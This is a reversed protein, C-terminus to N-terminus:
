LTGLAHAAQRMRGLRRLGLARRRAVPAAAAPGRPPRYGHLVGQPPEADEEHPQQQGPRHAGARAHVRARCLTSCDLPPRAATPPDATHASLKEETHQQECHVMRVSRTNHLVLLQEKCPAPDTALARLRSPTSRTARCAHAVMGQTLLRKQRKSRLARRALLPPAPAPPRSRGCPLGADGKRVLTGYLASVHPRRAVCSATDSAAAACASTPAPPAPAARCCRMVTSRRRYSMPEM